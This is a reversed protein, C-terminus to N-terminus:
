PAALLCQNPNLIWDSFVYVFGTAKYKLWLWSLLQANQIIEEPDPVGGKFVVQNQQEWISRIIVV